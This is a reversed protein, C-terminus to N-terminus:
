LGFIGQRCGNPSPTPTNPNTYLPSEYYLVYAETTAAQQNLHQQLRQLATQGALGANHATASLRQDSAAQRGSQPDDPPDMLVTFGDAGLQCSLRSVAEAITFQAVARRIDEVVPDDTSIIATFFEAGIARHLYNKEVETIIPLLQLFVAEANRLPYYQAFQRGTSISRGDYLAPKEWGEMNEELLHVLLDDLALLYKAGLAARKERYQWKFPQPNNDTATVRLGADGIQVMMDPLHLWYAYLAVCEQCLQVLETDEGATVSQQVVDFLDKGLVRRLETEAKRMPPLSASTSTYNVQLYKKATAINPIIPM